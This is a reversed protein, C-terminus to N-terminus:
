MAGKVQKIYQEIVKDVNEYAIGLWVFENTTCEKMLSMNQEKLGNLADLLTKLASNPTDKKAKVNAKAM